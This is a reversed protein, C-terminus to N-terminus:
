VSLLEEGTWENIFKACLIENLCLSVGNLALFAIDRFISTRFKRLEFVFHAVDSKSLRLIKHCGNTLTVITKFYTM